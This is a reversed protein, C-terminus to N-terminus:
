IGNLKYVQEKGGFRSIQRERTFELFSCFSLCIALALPTNLIIEISITFGGCPSVKPVNGM